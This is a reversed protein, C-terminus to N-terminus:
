FRVKLFVCIKKKRVYKKLLGRKLADKVYNLFFRGIIDFFNAGERIEIPTEPDYLFENESKLFSLMYFLRVNVKTSFHIRKNTLQIIGAFPGIRITPKGQINYFVEINKRKGRNFIQSRLYNYDKLSLKIDLEKDSYEPITIIYESM